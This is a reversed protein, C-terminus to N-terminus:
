LISFLFVPSYAIVHSNRPDFILILKSIVKKDSCDLPSLQLLFSKSDRGYEYNTGLIVDKKVYCM